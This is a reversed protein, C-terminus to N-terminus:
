NFYGTGGNKTNWYYLKGSTNKKGKVKKTTAIYVYYTKRANFKKGKFKKLTVSTTKRGVSKVKKYGKEPKTSVYIDYGTAGNVKAWKVNLKSGSVKVSKIRPQTFLYTYESWPTTYKQGCITSSARLKIKYVMSNSINSITVQESFRSVTGSKFKKGDSKYVIYEYEDAAPIKDWGIDVMKIWYWWKVQKIGTVREPITRFADCGILYEDNAGSYDVKTCSVKVYKECGAPLNGITVSTSTAPLTTYYVAESYTEGVYVKYGTADTEAKWQVTVSNKAPSVQLLGGAKATLTPSIMVAVALVFLGVLLKKMNKKM